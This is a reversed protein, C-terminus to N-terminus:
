KIRQLRIERDAIIEEIIVSLIAATPIALIAGVLGWLAGGILLAVLVAVPSVGVSKEM